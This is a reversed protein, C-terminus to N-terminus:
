PEEVSGAACTTGSPATSSSSLPRGHKIDILDRPRELDIAYRGVLQSAPGASLVFVDDSSRSRKRSITRSSSSPRAALGAWLTLLESEMRLRTHVDLAGFPEDMLLLDPRVIWSQAMAVRKRMGGSLQHPYRDGFGKM